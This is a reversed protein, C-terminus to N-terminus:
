PMNSQAESLMSDPQATLLDTQIGTQEDRDTQIYRDTPRNHKSSQSMYCNQRDTQIQRDTHRHRYTQNALSSYLCEV